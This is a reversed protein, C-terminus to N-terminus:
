AYFTQKSDIKKQETQLRRKVTKVDEAPPLNEPTIGRERLM